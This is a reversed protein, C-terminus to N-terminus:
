VKTTMRSCVEDPPLCTFPPLSRSNSAELISEWAAPLDLRSFIDISSQLSDNQVNETMLHTFMNAAPGEEIIHQM